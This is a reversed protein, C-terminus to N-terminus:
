FVIERVFSLYNNLSLYICISIFTPIFIDMVNWNDLGKIKNEIVKSISFGIHIIASLSYFGIFIIDAGATKTLLILTPIAFYVIIWKLHRKLKQNM